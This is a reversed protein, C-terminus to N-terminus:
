KKKKAKGGKAEEPFAHDHDHSHDHHGHDHDHDHDHDHSHGHHHHHHHDHDHDHDHNCDPGHVHEHELEDEDPKFLEEATVPKEDIKALELAFDVVKEEFIPARLELMAGPNNKYFEIVQREQGPYNRARDMIARRVEEDTVQISNAQGIESLVLGLRVRREALTRYEEKAKDETTGEDEFTKKNRELQQTVEGWVAQFENEVLSV